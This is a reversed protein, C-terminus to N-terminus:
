TGTDLGLQAHIDARAAGDLDLQAALRDLFAREAETDATIAILAAAYVEARLSAPTRVALQELTLPARIEADLAQLNEADLGAERARGRVAVREGAYILGAAQAATNI